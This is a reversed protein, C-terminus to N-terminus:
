PISFFKETSVPMRSGDRMPDEIALVTEVFERKLPLNKRAAMLFSTKLVNKIQRGNLDIDALADLDKESIDSKQKSL